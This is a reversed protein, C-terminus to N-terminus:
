RDTSCAATGDGAIRARGSLNLCLVRQVDNSYNGGGFQFRTASSLNFLRGTATFRIKTSSGSGGEVISDMATIPAQVRLLPDVPSSNDKNGDNDLDQFIIWGSVWGNGGPGSGSGCTPSSAEPADSRCLVVAGGLRIAESRAFRVDALFLNVNSSITNSQLLRTFSPAALTALIATVAMVVMLEILTFGHAQRM